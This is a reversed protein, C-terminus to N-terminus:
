KRDSALLARIKDTSDNDIQKLEKASLPTLGLEKVLKIILESTDKMGKVAWGVSQTDNTNEKVRPGDYDPNKTNKLQKKYYIFEQYTEILLVVTMFDREVDVSPNSTIVDWMKRGEANLGNKFLVDIMSEEEIESAKEAM